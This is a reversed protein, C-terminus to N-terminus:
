STELECLFWDYLGGDMTTSTTYSVSIVFSQYLLTPHTVTRLIEIEMNKSSVLLRSFNLFLFCPVSLCSVMESIKGVFRCALWLQRSSIVEILKFSLCFSSPILHYRSRHCPIKSRLALPHSELKCVKELWSVLVPQWNPTHIALDINLHHSTPFVASCSPALRHWLKASNPNGLSSFPNGIQDLHKCVLALTPVARCFDYNLRRM